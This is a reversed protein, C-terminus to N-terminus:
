SVSDIRIDPNDKASFVNAHGHPNITWTSPGYDIVSVKITHDTNNYIIFSSSLPHAASSACIIILILALIKKIPTKITRM